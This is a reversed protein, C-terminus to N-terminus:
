LRPLRGVHQEECRYFSRSYICCRAGPSSSAQQGVASSAVLSPCVGRPACLAVRWLSRRGSATKRRAAEPPSPSPARRCRAVAPHALLRRPTRSVSPGPISSRRRCSVVACGGVALRATCSCGKPTTQVLLGFDEDVFPDICPELLCQPWLIATSGRRMWATSTSWRHRALVGQLSGGNSHM